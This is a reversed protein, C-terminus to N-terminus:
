REVTITHWSNDNLRQTSSLSFVRKVKPLSFTFVVKGNILAILLYSNLNGVGTYLLLGNPNKTKFKIEFKNTKQIKISDFIRNKYFLETHGDLNLAIQQGSLSANNLVKILFYINFM